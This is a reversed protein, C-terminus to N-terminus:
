LKNYQQSTNSTTTPQQQNQQKTDIFSRGCSCSCCLCFNWYLVRQSYLSVPEDVINTQLKKEEDVMSISRSSYFSNFSYLIYLLISILFIFIVVAGGCQECLQICFSIFFNCNYFSACEVGGVFCGSMWENTEFFYEWMCVIMWEIVWLINM